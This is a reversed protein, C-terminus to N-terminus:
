VPTVVPPPVTTTVDNAVATLSDIVSQVQEPTPANTKFLELEAIKANLANVTTQNASLLAAVQAQMTDVTTQLSTVGAQLNEFETMITKLKQNNIILQNYIDKLIKPNKGIYITDFMFYYKM